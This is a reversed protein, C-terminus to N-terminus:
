MSFNSNEKKLLNCKDLCDFAKQIKDMDFFCKSLADLLLVKDEYKLTSLNMNKFIKFIRNSEDIKLTSVYNRFSP